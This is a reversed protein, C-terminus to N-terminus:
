KADRLNTLDSSRIADLNRTIKGVSWDWWAIRELELIIDPDFRYRILRAPNGVVIAFPPVDKSVVAGTGIVAGSGVTIGPLITARNGIWVDHGIITDGRSQPLHQASDFGPKWAEAMEDFPYGSFIDLRHNAGSMFFRVGAAVACFRGIILRDGHPEYHQLFCRQEFLEPGAPDNYYTFDGVEIFPNTVVNRLFVTTRDDSIPFRLMPNPQQMM